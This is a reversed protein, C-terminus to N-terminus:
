LASVTCYRLGGREKTYLPMEEAPARSTILLFRVATYGGKGETDLGGVDQKGRMKKKTKNCFRKHQSEKDITSIEQRGECQRDREKQRGETVKKNSRETCITMM